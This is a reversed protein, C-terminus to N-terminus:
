NLKCSTNCDFVDVHNSIAFLRMGEKNKMQLKPCCILTDYEVLLSYDLSMETFQLNVGIHSFACRAPAIRVGQSMAM